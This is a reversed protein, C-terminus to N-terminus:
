PKSAEEISALSQEGDTRAGVVITLGGLKSEIYAVLAYIFVLVGTMELFEEAATILEYRHTDAGNRSEWLGAVMEAGLAGAVFLAGAAIVLRKTQRPLTLVFRWYALVLIAALPIGFL